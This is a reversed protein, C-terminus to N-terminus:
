LYTGGHHAIHNRKAKKNKTSTIPKPAPSGLHKICEEDGLQMGLGM